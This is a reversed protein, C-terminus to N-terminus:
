QELGDVMVCKGEPSCKPSGPAICAVQPCLGLGGPRCMSLAERIQACIERSSVLPCGPCCPEGSGLPGTCLECDADVACTGEFSMPLGSDAPSPDGGTGAIPFGVPGGADASGGSAGAGPAGATGANGGNGGRGAGSGSAGGRGSAGGSGSRTGASGGAGDAAGADGRGDPGGAGAGADDDDSSCSFMLSCSFLSFLACAIALLAVGRQGFSGVRSERRGDMAVEVATSRLAVPQARAM